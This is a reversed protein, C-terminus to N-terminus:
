VSRRRERCRLVPCTDATTLRQGAGGDALRKWPQGKNKMRVYGSVSDGCMMDDPLDDPADYVPRAVNAAAPSVLGLASAALIVLGAFLPHLRRPGAKRSAIDLGGNGM